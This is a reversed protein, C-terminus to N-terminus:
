AASEAMLRAMEARAADVAPGIVSLTPIYLTVWVQKGARGREAEHSCTHCIRRVAVGLAPAVEDLVANCNPCRLVVLGLPALEIRQTQGADADAM